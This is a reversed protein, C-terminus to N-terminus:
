APIQSYAKAISLQANALALGVWGKGSFLSSVVTPVQQRPSM